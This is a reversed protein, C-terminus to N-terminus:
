LYMFVLREKERAVDAMVEYIQFSIFTNKRGYRKYSVYYKEMRSMLKKMLEHLKKGEEPIPSPASQIAKYYDNILVNIRDLAPGYDIFSDQFKDFIEQLGDITKDSIEVQYLIAEKEIEGAGIGGLMDIKKRVPVQAVTQAALPLAAFLTLCVFFIIAISSKKM